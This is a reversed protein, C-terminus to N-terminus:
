NRKWDIEICLNLNKAVCHATAPLGVRLGVVLGTIWRRRRVVRRISRVRPPLPGAPRLLSGGRKSLPDGSRLISSREGSFADTATLLLSFSKNTDDDCGDNPSLAESLTPSLIIGLLPPPARKSNRCRNNLLAQRGASTAM